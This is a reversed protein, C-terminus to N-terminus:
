SRPFDSESQNPQQNPQDRTSGTTKLGIIAVVLLGLFLVQIPRLPQGFVVPGSFAAGLVGISVWIAYGTGIPITRLALSLLFM